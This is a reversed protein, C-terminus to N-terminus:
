SVYYPILLFNTGCFSKQNIKSTEQESTIVSYRHSSSVKSVDLSLDHHLPHLLSTHAPLPCRVM